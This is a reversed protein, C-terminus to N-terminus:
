AVLGLRRAIAMVAHARRAFPPDIMKGDVTYAGLGKDAAEREAALIRQAHAIEADSPRFVANALAVQSPHICSKGGYGLRRAAEAERTFGDRDAIDAFAADYAPVGAEGAALRVQLQVAQVAAADRRDIGLPEFLDAFGVQLGSVRAHAGAIEAAFRLAHPTEITALIGIPVAIGRAREVGQMRDALAIIDDARECKPLNIMAVAPMVAAAVDAEYHPTDAGNVRVIVLPGADGRARSSLTAVVAARAEAKRNEPVADELDISIADADVSLAKVILEPRSGPVFLKSRM